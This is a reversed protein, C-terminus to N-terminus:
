EKPDPDKVAEETTSDVLKHLSPLDGVSITLLRPPLIFGAADWNEKVLPLTKNQRTEDIRM